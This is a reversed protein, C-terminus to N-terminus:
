YILKIEMLWNGEKYIAWEFWFNFYAGKVSSNNFLDTIIPGGEVYPAPFSSFELELRDLFPTYSVPNGSGLERFDKISGDGYQYGLYSDVNTPTGDPKYIKVTLKNGKEALRTFKVKFDKIGDVGSFKYYYPLSYSIDLTVASEFLRTEASNKVEIDIKYIGKPLRLSDTVQPYIIIRGNLSDIDIAPRIAKYRKADIEEITKEKKTYASTWLYTEVKYDMANQAISGDENRIAVIRFTLPKTSEDTIAARTQFLPGGVVAKIAQTTPFKFDKSFYGKNQEKKCAYFFFASVLLLFCQIKKNTKM